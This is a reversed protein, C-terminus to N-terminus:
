QALGHIGDDAMADRLRGYVAEDVIDGFIKAPGQGLLKNFFAFHLPCVERDRGTVRHNPAMPLRPCLPRDGKM